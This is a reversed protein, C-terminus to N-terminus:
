IILMADGYSFLRFRKEIAKAYAEVMLDYGMFASVLVLLSSEPTHFNTFLGSVFHFTSGPYIFLNTQSTQPHIIGDADSVTELVRCSTTGVAVKRSRKPLSNLQSAVEPSIEFPEFHMVHDRIDPTRIPLFTGTGVHLTIFHSSISKKKIRDFLDNTFHLGATPAAASGLEKGYVTQYRDADVSEIAKRKMYPPLPISGLSRLDQFSLDHSFRLIRKGGEVIDIVHAYVGHKFDIKSGLQLIRAPKALVIWDTTHLKKALLCTVERKGTVKGELSAHYVKTNNFILADDADLIDPLDRVLGETISGSKRDVIMLRAHDRPSIPYSAVLEEPFSYSYSALSFLDTM